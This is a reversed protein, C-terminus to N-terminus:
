GLTTGENNNYKQNFYIEDANSDVVVRQLKFGDWWSEKITEKEKELYKDFFDSPRKIWFMGHAVDNAKLEEILEQIPTKM